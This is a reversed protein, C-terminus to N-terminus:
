PARAAAVRRRYVTRLVFWGLAAIGFVLLASITTILSVRVGGWVLPASAGGAAEIARAAEVIGVLTGIVGVVVGFAGWFLIADIGIEVAADAAGAALRRAGKVILAVVAVGIVLLPYMAVGGAVVWDILSGSM